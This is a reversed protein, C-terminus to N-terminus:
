QHPPEPRDAPNLVVPSIGASVGTSTVIIVNYPMSFDPTALAVLANTTWLRAMPRAEQGEAARQLVVLSAAPVDFGRHADSPYETYRLLSTSFEFTIRVNKSGPPLSLTLHLSTPRERPLAPTLETSVIVGDVFRAGLTHASLPGPATSTPLRKGTVADDVEVRLTHMWIQIWWPLEESYLAQTGGEDDVVHRAIEVGLVGGQQTAKSLIRRFTVPSPPPDYLAAARVTFTPMLVNANLRSPQPECYTFGAEEQWRQSM